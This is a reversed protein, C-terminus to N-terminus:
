KMVKEIESVFIELTGWISPEVILYDFDRGLQTMLYELLELRALSDLCEGFKDSDFEIQMLSLQNIVLARVDLIENM